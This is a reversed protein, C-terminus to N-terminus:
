ADTTSLRAELGALRESAQTLQQNAIQAMQWSYAAFGALALVVVVLAVLVTWVSGPMGAEAGGSRAPKAVSKPEAAKTPRQRTASFERMEDKAPVLSSLDDPIPGNDHQPM